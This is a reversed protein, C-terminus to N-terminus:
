RLLLDLRCLQLDPCGAPEEAAALSSLWHARRRCALRALPRPPLQIPPPQSQRAHGATHSRRGTGPPRPRDRPTSPRPRAPDPRHACCSHGAPPRQRAPQPRCSCPPPRCAKQAPGARFLGTPGHRPRRRLGHASRARGTLYYPRALCPGSTVPGPRARARAPGPPGSPCRYPRQRCFRVIDGTLWAMIVGRGASM